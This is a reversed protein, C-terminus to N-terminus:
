WYGNSRPIYTGSNSSLMECKAVTTAADFYQVARSAPRCAKFFADLALKERSPWMSPAKQAGNQSATACSYSTTMALTPLMEYSIPWPLLSTPRM